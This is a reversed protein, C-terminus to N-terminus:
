KYSHRQSGQLFYVNSHSPKCLIGYILQLFHVVVLHRFLSAPSDSGGLTQVSTQLGVKCATVGAEFFFFSINPSHFASLMRLPLSFHDLLKGESFHTAQYTTMAVTMKNGQECSLILLIPLMYM